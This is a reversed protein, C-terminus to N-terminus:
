SDFIPGYAPVGRLELGYVIRKTMVPNSIVCVAEAEFEKFLRLIVPMMDRRGGLASTDLIVPDPDMRRVLDMTRAGYTQGPSRTQWVVRMKPRNEDGIFSLCPGIGSGTTVVIIRHFMRMVYGFGYTPIGRKWLHTPQAAITARTWDGAKSVLCSFKTDPTDYRDVFSAFSHWDALPHRALSIGQGFVVSTHSFHLRVAHASLAEAKVPVRRLLLWPHITALTLIIIIWFAPLNVLFSSMGVSSDSALMLVLAWFVLLIIWNSFRHTLEFYDHKQSRFKPHAVAIIALLLALVLWVLVLVATSKPSPRYYYTYLAAFGIYWVCAAVGTGSHVGGLHFIKCALRRLRMPTSRPISGFTIFLANVVLPQRCLGCVLINIASANVLDLPTANGRAMIVIFAIANGIFALTFLRRYVNLATYRVFGLHKRTQSLNFESDNNDQAEIDSVTSIVTFRKEKDISSITSDSMTSQVSQRLEKSTHTKSSNAMILQVSQRTNEPSHTATQDPTIPLGAKPPEQIRDEM